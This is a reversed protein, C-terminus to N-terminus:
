NARNALGTWVTRQIAAALIDANVHPHNLSWLALGTMASRVIEAYLEADAESVELGPEALLLKKILLRATTRMQEHVAAISPDATTDRFLMQWAYPHTQVYGFWRRAVYTIREALPLPKRMDAALQSLLQDRHKALLQLHLDQKSAFHLYVVPKTVGAAAAVQDLSTAEYGREAFLRSAADEILQRREPGALRKGTRAM